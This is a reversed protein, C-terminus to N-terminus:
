NKVTDLLLPDIPVHQDDRRFGPKPIKILYAKKLKNTLINDRLWPNMLKIMKYNTSYRQAFEAINRIGSDIKVETCPVIPYMDSQPINFGYKIPDSLILKIALIRFVYRSTEQWLLLDYYNTAKQRIIQKNINKRGTNYSAAVLTWNHYVNYSERLFMCAAETSKELNYREDVEDTVELGYEKATLKMFQWFGSAGAPSPDNTMGSEAIALYKFDSPIGYKKLIPEIVPLYRNARKIYMITQSQYYTNVLMERDLSEYVDFNELPVKEGAFNLEKPLEVPNVTHSVNSIIRPIEEESKNKGFFVYTSGIVMFLVMLIFVLRIRKGKIRNLVM